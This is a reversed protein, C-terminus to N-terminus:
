RRPDLVAAVDREVGDRRIRLVYRTGPKQTALAGLIGPERSDAGNVALIVDGARLGARAAGTGQRVRSVKLYDAIRMGDPSGILRLSIDFGTSATRPPRTSDSPVTDTIEIRGDPLRRVGPRFPPVTDAAPSATAVTSAVGEAAVDCATLAVGAAVVLLPLSRLLPHSPRKETMTLIRRELQSTSDGWAPGLLPLGPTCGATRILVQAYERRDAGRRLVRADCDAEVAARLRRHQWWLPPCWPMAAVALAGLFLQWADGAAVHEREHLLILRREEEPADLVWRPVVVEPRLLGVVAPGLREVVRVPGGDLEVRAGGACAVKLRHYTWAMVGLTALSSALWGLALLVGPDSWWTSQAPADAVPVAPAGVPPLAGWDWAPVAPAASPFIGIGPLLGPALLSIAALGLSARMAAAWAARRPLGLWGAAREAVRAAAGLLAAVLAAQLM